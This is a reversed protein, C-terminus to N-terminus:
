SRGLFPIAKLVTTLLDIFNVRLFLQPVLFLVFIACDVYSIQGLIM